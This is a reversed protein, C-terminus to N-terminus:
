HREFIAPAWATSEDRGLVKARVYGDERSLEYSAAAHAALPGVTALLRGTAGYFHVTAGGEAPWVTYTTETVRIRDIVVGTSAYLDGRKLSECLTAADDHLAAVQVWARGAYAPPDADVRLHHVDDVGVGMMHAGGTLAADWLAEHSPRTSTGLSYVYPHGSMVEILPAAQSALLDTAVLARDFNPHNIIAVGGQAAVHSTAWTVAEAASDFTGGGIRSKTCLANVHVQRGGGKMTIEEGNLLKFGEDQM